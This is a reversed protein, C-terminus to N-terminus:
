KCRPVHADDYHRVCYGRGVCVSHNPAEDPPTPRVRCPAGSFGAYHPACFGREACRAHDLPATPDTM